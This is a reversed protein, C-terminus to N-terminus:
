KRSLLLNLPKWEEIHDSIIKFIAVLPIFLIMGSVGWVIGGAIFAIMIALTSVNLQAGVVKPFIVNAELYQVFGFVAVVGLPYWINGTELWVVSVPLLGSVFIGIYPIITMIACLMGFILAHDVGLALLGLTNLIGVIIYVLIIGKVFSFYTIITEHLIATLKQQYAPPTILKLYQVLVKRHYLILATYIPTLFLIVSTSITAELTSAVASGVLSTLREGWSHQLEVTLGANEVLYAQLQTLVIEVKHIIETGERSFIQVQWILLWLILGMILGVIALCATIAIVKGLGFKEIWRSVPYMVIAIVLGLFLPIFLVKGFYLILSSFLIVQLYQNFRPILQSHAEM